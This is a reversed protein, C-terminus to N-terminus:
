ETILLLSVSARQAGLALYTSRSEQGLEWLYFHQLLCPSAHCPPTPYSCVQVWVRGEEPRWCEGHAEWLKRGEQVIQAKFVKKAEWM